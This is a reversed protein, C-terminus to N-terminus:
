GCDHHERVAKRVKTWIPWDRVGLKRLRSDEPNREIEIKSM